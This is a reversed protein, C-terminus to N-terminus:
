RLGGELADALQAVRAPVACDPLRLVRGNRLVVELMAGAGAESDPMVAANSQSAVAVPVFRAEGDPASLAGTKAQRRWSHVLNPHIDRQRAFDAVSLGSLLSEEVVRLKEAATWRRRREPGPLVTVTTM